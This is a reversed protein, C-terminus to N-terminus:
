RSGGQEACFVPQYSKGEDKERYRCIGARQPDRAGRTEDGM